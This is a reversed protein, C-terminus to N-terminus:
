TGPIPPDPFRKDEAVEQNQIRDQRGLGLLLIALTQVRHRGSTSIDIKQNFARVKGLALTGCEKQGGRPYTMRFKM